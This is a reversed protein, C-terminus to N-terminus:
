LFVVVQRWQKGLVDACKRIEFLALLSQDSADQIRPTAIFRREFVRTFVLKIKIPNALTTAPVAIARQKELM